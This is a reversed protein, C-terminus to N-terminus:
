RPRLLLEANAWDAHDCDRGDDESSVVLTLNRTGHVSVTLPLPPTRPDMRGSDYLLRDREDRVEFRVHGVPCGKVHDSLGIVASFWEAGEPLPYTARTWAHMGIGREYRVNGMVLLPGNWERDRRPPALEFDVSLPELDSLSMHTGLWQAPSPATQLFTAAERAPCLDADDSGDGPQGSASAFVWAPLPLQGHGLRRYVVGIPSDAVVVEYSRELLSALRAEPGERSQWMIAETGHAIVIFTPKRELTAEWLATVEPNATSGYINRTPPPMGAYLYIDHPEDRVFLTDNPAAMEAIRQGIARIQAEWPTIGADNGVAPIVHKWWPRIFCLLALAIGMLLRRSLGAPWPMHRWTLLSEFVMGATIALAPFILIIYHHESRPSTVAVAYSLALWLWTLWLWRSPRLLTLPVLLALTVSFPWVRKHTLMEYLLAHTPRWLASTWTGNAFGGYVAADVVVADFFARAANHLAFYLVFGGIVAGAGGVLALLAWLRERVRLQSGPQDGLTLVQVALAPGVLAAPQKSMMALGFLVGSAGAWVPGTFAACGFAAAVLGAALLETNQSVIFAPDALILTMFACAAIPAAVRCGSRRLGAYMLLAAGTTLMVVLRRFGEPDHGWLAFSARLALYIVPPKFDYLDRYPLLGQGWFHAITAYIRIDRGVWERWVPASWAVAGGLVLLAPALLDVGITLWLRRSPATTSGLTVLPVQDSSDHVARSKSPATLEATGM